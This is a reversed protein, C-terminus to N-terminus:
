RRACRTRRDVFVQSSRVVVIVPQKPTVYESKFEKYLDIKTKKPM